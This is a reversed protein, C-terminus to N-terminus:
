KARNYNLKRKIEHLKAKNYLKKYVVTRPPPTYGRREVGTVMVAYYNRFAIKDLCQKRLHLM